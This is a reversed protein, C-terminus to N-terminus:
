AGLFLFKQGKDAKQRRSQAANAAHHKADYRLHCPACACVLNEPRCDMPEHNCHAVTATKRHTDFPEGPRRCQKGCMECQYDAEAKIRDAIEKWNAPYKEWDVPMHAEERIEVKEKRKLHAFM